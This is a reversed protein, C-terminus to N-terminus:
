ATKKKYMGTSFLGSLVHLGKTKLPKLTQLILTYNHM